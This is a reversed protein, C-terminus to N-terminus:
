SEKRIYRGNRQPIYDGDPTPDIQHKGNGYAEVEIWEKANKLSPFAKLVLDWLGSFRDDYYEWEIAWDGVSFVSSQNDLQHNYHVREIRAEWKRGDVEWKAYTLGPGHKKFEIETKNQQGIM